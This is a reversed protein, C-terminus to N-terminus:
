ASPIPLMPAAPIAALEERLRHVATVLQAVQKELLTWDPPLTMTEVERAGAWLSDAAFNGVSGKLKHAQAALAEPDRAAMAQCLGRLLEDSQTVFASALLGLLAPDHDVQALARARDMIPKPAAAPTATRPPPLQPPPTATRAPLPSPTAAPPTGSPPLLANVAKTLADLRLPKTLYADMGIERYFQAGNPIANATIAIIPLRPTRKKELEWARIAKTAECGDMVPMQHDMMVLDFRQTQVLNLAELGNNALVVEFGLKALFIKVLEQNLHNDDVALARRDTVAPTAAPRSEPAPRVPVPPAVPHATVLPTQDASLPLDFWFSSGLGDASTLGVQGGMLEVLRKCIALGLGTGGFHRTTSSDAQIFNQFLRAQKEPPIGIGTDTVTIRLAAPGAALTLTVGGKATFKLANGVLNILVQRLRSADAVVVRPLGPPAAQVTLSLGKSRAQLSLIHAVNEVAAFADVRHREVELKGAEIKSFDLIDNILSILNEGSSRIIEVFDLQKPQLPTALLLETFGIVANMPTRIEHSMVALFESKAKSAAEAAHRATHLTAEHTKRETIDTRIAVFREVTGAQNRSPVVTAAVWYLTGDKRRNCIEGHWIEGSRIRQWFERWFDPPHQGSNIIRHLQGLLEERPYGSIACFRDNAHQIRGTLDTVSVIAHQDMADRHLEVERLATEAAHRAATIQQLTKRRESIDAALGVFGVFKGAEDRVATFSLQVPVHSGDKRRYTWEHENPLDRCARAVFVDFGPKLEGGLEANLQAARAVVEAPVHFMEPTQLGVIEAETYGLMQQAAPNFTRILGDPTTSIIAINASKLIAFQFSSLDKVTRDALERRAIESRLELTRAVALEEARQRFNQLSRVLAGLLLTGFALGLSAWVTASLDAPQYEPGPNWGASFSKGPLNLPLKRKFAPWTPGPKETSYLLPAAEPPGPEFIYVQLASHQQELAERMFDAIVVPAYIWARLASRREAVTGLPAGPRYVPLYLVFGPQPPADRVPVFQSALQVEGTDRATAAAAHGTTETAVDAGPGSHNGAEPEVFAIVFHEAGAATSAGPLPHITFDPTDDARMRQLFKETEDPRVPYIVGVGSIGPFQKQLELTRTSTRWQERELSPATLLLAAGSRLVGVYNKLHEEIDSTADATLAAFSQEDTRIQSRRMHAFSWGDLTWGALLVLSPLLSGRGRFTPLIQAMIAASALFLQLNILDQNLNGTVFPGHGRYTGTIAAAAILLAVWGAVPAEIWLAALLLVPFIGFIMGECDPRFFALACVGAAAAVIVLCRAADRGSAQRLWRGLAPAALLAPLVFLAGLADGVWWTIWTHATAEAPTIGGAFLSLTGGSAGSLPAGLAVVISAALTTYNGLHHQGRSQVQRWLWIGLLAEGITGAAMGLAVTVPLGSHLSVLIHAAAVAPWLRVGHVLLLWIGLGTAPWVPSINGNVSALLVCLRALGFYALGGGLFTKWGAVRATSTPAASTM